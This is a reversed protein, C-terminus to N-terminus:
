EHGTPKENNSIPEHARIKILLRDSCRSSCWQEVTLYGGSGWEGGFTIKKARGFIFHFKHRSINFADAYKKAFFESNGVKKM